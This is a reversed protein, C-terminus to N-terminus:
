ESLRVPISPLLLWPPNRIGVMRTTGIFTRRCFHILEVSSKKEREQSGNIQVKGPACQCQRVSRKKRLNTWREHSGIIGLMNSSAGVSKWVNWWGQRPKEASILESSHGRPEKHTVGAAAITFICFQRKGLHLHSSRTGYLLLWSTRWRLSKQQQKNNKNTTTQQQKNTSICFQRM